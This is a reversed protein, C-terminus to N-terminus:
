SEPRKVNGNIWIMETIPNLIFYKEVIFRTRAESLIETLM